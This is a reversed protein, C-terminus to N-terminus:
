PHIVPRDESQNFRLLCSDSGLCIQSGLEFIINDGFVSAWAAYTSNCILSGVRGSLNERGSNIMLDHWPCKTITIIFGTGIETKGAQFTYGELALKTTFADFLGEIGNDLGTTDKLLRAQVKPLIKWVENDISLAAEFGYKEETKLFWLGDVVTYSRRFYEAVQKDNLDLMM